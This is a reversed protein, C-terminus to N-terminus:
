IKNAVLDEYAQQIKKSKLAHQEENVIYEVSRVSSELKGIENEQLDKLIPLNQHRLDVSSKEFDSKTQRLINILQSDDQLNRDIMCRHEKLMQNKYRDELKLLSTPTYKSDFGSADELINSTVNDM